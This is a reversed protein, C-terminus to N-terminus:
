VDFEELQLDFQVMKLDIKIKLHFMHKINQLVIYKLLWKSAVGKALLCTHQHNQM